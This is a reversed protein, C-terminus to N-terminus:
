CPNEVKKLRLLGPLQVGLPTHPPLPLAHGSASCHPTAHLQIGLLSTPLTCPHTSISRRWRGPAPSSHASPHLAGRHPPSGWWPPTHCHQSGRAFKEEGCLPVAARVWGQEQSATTNQGQRAVRVGRPGTWIGVPIHMGKTSLGQRLFDPGQSNFDYQCSHIYIHIGIQKQASFIRLAQFARSRHWKPKKSFTLM